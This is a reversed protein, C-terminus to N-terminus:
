RSSSRAWCGCRASSSRRWSPSGWCHAGHVAIPTCALCRALSAWLALGAAMELGNPAVITTSYVLVPSAALIVAVLPWRSAVRTASWAALGIFLLCLAASVIRMAYLAAAGDFPQAATGVVWYYAPHYLGAGSAARVTSQSSATPSCNEPGTYRLRECQFRAADALERPVTVFLGRGDSSWDDVVIEGDAM